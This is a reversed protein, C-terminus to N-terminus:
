ESIHRSQVIKIFVVSYLMGSPHLIKLFDKGNERKDTNECAEICIVM